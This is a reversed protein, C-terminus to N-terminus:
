EAAAKGGRLRTVEAIIRAGAEDIEAGTTFRGLGIRLSAGAEADSLGMARLVYSPEVSASTCASGSSVCVDEALAEILATGDIGAFSLNLNGQLRNRLDGNLTVGPLADSLKGHLRDRLDALREGEGAMERGAIECAVGLGVCLAPALTGSRMGREQGGGDILPILRVRPRRRVYLVGIGMPGYLKHGSISMLDI